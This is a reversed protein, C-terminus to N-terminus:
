CDVACNSSIWIADASSDDDYDFFTRTSILTIAQISMSAKCLYMYVQLKVMGTFARVLVAFSTGL